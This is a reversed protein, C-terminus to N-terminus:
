CQASHTMFEHGVQPQLSLGPRRGDGGGYGKVIHLKLASMRNVETPKTLELLSSKPRTYRPKMKAAVHLM